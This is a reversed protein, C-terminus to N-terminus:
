KQQKSFDTRYIYKSIEELTYKDYGLEPMLKFEDIAFKMVSTTEDPKLVWETMYKVFDAEKPFASIYNKKIESLSPASIRKVESHCTICNGNFLLEGYNSAFISNFLIMLLFLLKIM